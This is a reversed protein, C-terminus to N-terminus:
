VYGDSNERDRVLALATALDDHVRANLAGLLATADLLTREGAAEAAPLFSGAVMGVVMEATGESPQDAAKDLDDILGGLLDALGIGTRIVEEVFMRSAELSNDM